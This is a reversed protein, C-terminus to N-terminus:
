CCCCCCGCCCCCRFAVVIVVVVAVVDLFFGVVDVEVAVPALSFCASVLAFAPAHAVVPAFAVVYVGSGSGAGDNM